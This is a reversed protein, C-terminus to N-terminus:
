VSVPHVDRGSVLMTALALARNPVQDAYKSALLEYRAQPWQGMKAAQLMRKFGAFRPGGLQFAMETLARKRVDDLSLVWPFKAALMSVTMGIDARLMIFAEDRTISPAQPDVARGIVRQLPLWGRDSINYGVGITWKGETDLYPVLRVGEHIVLQRELASLSSPM